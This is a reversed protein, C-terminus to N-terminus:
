NVLTVTRVETNSILQNPDSGGAPGSAAWGPASFLHRLFSGHTVVAIESEPRRSLWDVFELGRAICHESPEREATWDIDGETPFGHSEFDVADGTGHFVPGMEAVIETKTKRKDCTYRGWRERCTHHVLFPINRRGFILHATQLARVLPSVVVLDPQCTTASAAGDRAALCEQVGRPTLGCDLFRWAGETTHEIPVLSGGVQATAENHFGQAHRVFHVTKVM